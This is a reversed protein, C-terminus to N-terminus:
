AEAYICNIDIIRLCGVHREVLFDRSLLQQPQQLLRKKTPHAHQQPACQACPCPVTSTRTIGCRAYHRLLMVVGNKGEGEVRLLEV